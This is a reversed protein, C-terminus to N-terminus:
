FLSQSRSDRSKTRKYKYQLFGDILILITVSNIFNKIAAIGSQLFGDILILITVDTGPLTRERYELNCFVM